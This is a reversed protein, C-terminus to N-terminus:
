LEKHMIHADVLGLRAHRFANPITAVIRMGSKTWAKVAAENTAVVLNFQMALFGAERAFRQSARCMDAALGRGRAAEAVIYSCNAVHAGLAMQNPRINFTGALAGTEDRVVYVLRPTEVWIRRAEAESIDQPYPYTEGARFVPEIAAWTEPWDADAFLAYAIM